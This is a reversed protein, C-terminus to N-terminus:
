LNLILHKSTPNNSNIIKTMQEAEQNHLNIDKAFKKFNESM